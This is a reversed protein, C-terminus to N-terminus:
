GIGGPRPILLCGNGRELGLSAERPVELCFRYARRNPIALPQQPAGLEVIVRRYTVSSWTFSNHIRSRCAPRCARGVCVVQSAQEPLDSPM